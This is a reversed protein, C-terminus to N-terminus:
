TRKLSEKIYKEISQPRGDKLITIHVIGESSSVGLLDGKKLPQGEEVMIDGFGYITTQVDDDHKVTVFRGLTNDEGVTKVIGDLMCVLNAKEGCQLRALCGDELFEISAFEVPVIMKNSEVFVDMLGPLQVFKLKGLTEDVEGDEAGMTQTLRADTKPTKPSDVWKIFLVLACASVCIGFKIAISSAASLDRAGRIRRKKATTKKNSKLSNFYGFRSTRTRSTDESVFDSLKIRNNDM